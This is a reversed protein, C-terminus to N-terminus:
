EVGLKKRVQVGHDYIKLSDPLSKAVSEKHMCRKVWAILKPCQAEINFNGFIETAYFWSYLPVFSVDVFGFDDGGFYPKDGLEGELMKLVKIFEKKNKELEEGKSSSRMIDWVCSYIRLEISNEMQEERGGIEGEGAVAVGGLSKLPQLLSRGKLRIERQFRRSFGERNGRLSSVERIKRKKERVEKHQQRWGRKSRTFGRGASVARKRQSDVGAAM